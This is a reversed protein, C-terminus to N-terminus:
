ALQPVFFIPSTQSASGTHTWGHGIPRSLIPQLLIQSGKLGKNVCQPKRPSSLHHSTMNLRERKRARERLLVRKIRYKHSLPGNEQLKALIVRKADLPGENDRWRDDM